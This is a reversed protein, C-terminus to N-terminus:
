QSEGHTLMATINLKIQAQIREIEGERFDKWGMYRLVAERSARFVIVQGFVLIALLRAEVSQPDIGRIKSILTTSIQLASGMLGEYFVDFAATPSQQERLILKAWSSSEQDVLMRLMGNMLKVLLSLSTERMEAPDTQQEALVNLKARIEQTIPGIRSGIQEAIYKIAALYLGDKGGFHYGIAAQNAEAQRAIERTSAAHFGDRGFIEIASRVLAQRTVDGRSKLQKAM